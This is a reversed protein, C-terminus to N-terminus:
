QAPYIISLVGGAPVTTSVQRGNADKIAVTKTDGTTNCIYVGHSNDPNM